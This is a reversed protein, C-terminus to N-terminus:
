FQMKFNFVSFCQQMSLIPMIFKNLKVELIIKLNKKKHPTFVKLYSEFKLEKILM